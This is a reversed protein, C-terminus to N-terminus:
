INFLCSLYLVFRNLMLYERIFRFVQYEDDIILSSAVMDGLMTVGQHKTYIIGRIINLFIVVETDEMGEMGETGQTDKFTILKIQIIVMDKCVMAMDTFLKNNNITLQSINLQRNLVLLRFM